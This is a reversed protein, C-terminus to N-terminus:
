DMRSKERRERERWILFSRLRSNVKAHNVKERYRIM